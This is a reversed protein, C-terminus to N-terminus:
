TSSDVVLWCSGTESAPFVNGTGLKFEASSTLSMLDGPTSKGSKVGFTTKLTRRYTNIFSAISNSDSDVTPPVHAMPAQLDGPQSHIEFQSPQFDPAQFDPISFNQLFAETVDEGAALDPQALDLMEVVNSLNYPPEEPIHLIPPEEIPDLYPQLTIQQALSMGVTDVIAPLQAAWHYAKSRYSVSTYFRELYSEAFVACRSREDLKVLMKTGRKFLKAADLFWMCSTGNSTRNMKQSLPDHRVADVIMFALAVLTQTTTHDFHLALSEGTQFNNLLHAREDDHDDIERHWQSLLLGSLVQAIRHHYEDECSSVGVFIDDIDRHLRDLALECWTLLHQLIKSKHEQMLLSHEFQYLMLQRDCSSSDM